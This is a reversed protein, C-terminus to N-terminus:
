LAVNVDHLDYTRAKGGGGDKYYSFVVFCFLVLNTPRTNKKNGYRTNQANQPINSNLLQM